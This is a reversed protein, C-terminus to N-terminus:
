RVHDASAILDALLESFRDVLSLHGETSFLHARATPVEAALWQGHEFPVMRDQRGQWVAVPVSIRTLDFGWDSVYALDDDRWGAIGSSVAHRISVAMEEAFRGTLAAQDVPSLLGALAERVGDASVAALETAALELLAALEDPGAM